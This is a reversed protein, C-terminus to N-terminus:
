LHPWTCCSYCHETHTKWKSKTVLMAVSQTLCHELMCLCVTYYMCLNAHNPAKKTEKHQSMWVLCVELMNLTQLKIPTISSNTVAMVVAIISRNKSYIIYEYGNTEDKDVKLYFAKDAFSKKLMVWVCKNYVNFSVLCDPVIEKCACVWLRLAKEKGHVEVCQRRREKICPYLMKLWNHMWFSIKWVCRVNLAFCFFCACERERVCVCIRKVYACEHVYMSFSLYQEVYILFLETKFLRRNARTGLVFM